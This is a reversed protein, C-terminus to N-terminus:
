AAVIKGPEYNSSIAHTLSLLSPSWPPRPILTAPPAEHPLLLDPVTSIVASVFSCFRAAGMGLCCGLGVQILSMQGM